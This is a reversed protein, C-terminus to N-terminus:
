NIVFETIFDTENKKQIVQEVIICFILGSGYARIDSNKHGDM